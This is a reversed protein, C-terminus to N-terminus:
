TKHLFGFFYCALFRRLSYDSGVAAKQQQEKKIVTKMQAPVPSIRKHGIEDCIRMFMNAMNFLISPPSTHAASKGLHIGGSISRHTDSKPTIVLRSVRGLSPGCVCGTVHVRACVCVVIAFERNASWYVRPVCFAFEQETLLAASTLVSANKENFHLPSFGLLHTNLKRATWTALHCSEQTRQSSSNVTM